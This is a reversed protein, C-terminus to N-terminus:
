QLFGEIAKTVEHPRELHVFHEAGALVELTSNNILEHYQQGYWLPTSQDNEGYLLLTPLRLRAADARVDDTVVKKFTEQLHEAVLMDSGVTSYVKQRLRKKVGKPLPTTFAKGAKTVLRLVKMRGKYTGRVGASAMLVLREAQLWGQGLGRIAIAGGNSHGVLAYTNEARIKVLFHEVFHAYESLGWAQPPAQTGGFGPLDMAVVKYNKALATQLDKLGIASDGWGHLLVVLKGSGKAEYHTLLSDVVVQM